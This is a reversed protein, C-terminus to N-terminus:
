RKKLAEFRRTLAEFDDEPAKYVPPPTAAKGAAAPKGKDGEDETPPLDPLKPTKRGGTLPVPRESANLGPLPESVGTKDETM